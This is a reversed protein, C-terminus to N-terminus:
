KTTSLQAIRILINRAKEMAQISVFERVSHYNHGGLFINPCALGKEALTAGDTGGRIPVLVPELGIDRFGQMCLDLMGQNELVKQKMNAYEDKIEVRVRDAGYHQNLRDAGQLLIEKRHEFSELDFDRIVYEMKGEDVNCSLHGLHYFGQYGESHEPREDRPIWADYEMALMAANVMKGKAEATHINTGRISVNAKAANFNEVNLEGIGDGDVTLATYAGFEDVDFVAAGGHSIEEDPTFGIRIKGHRINPNNILNAAMDMIIAIGAKDDAGLLTTGDSTVIDDGVYRSLDRDVLPDLLIGLSENVVIRGGDYGSHVMPKVGNGVCDPATDLHALFGITPINECGLTAPITAFVFGKEDLKVDKLGLDNLEQRLHEALKMQGDSSPIKGADEVATTDIQVYYLFRELLTKM